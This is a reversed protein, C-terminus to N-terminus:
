KSQNENLLCSPNDRSEELLEIKKDLECEFRVYKWWAKKGGDEEPDLDIKLLQTGFLKELIM